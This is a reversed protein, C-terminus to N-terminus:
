KFTTYKVVVSAHAKEYPALDIKELVELKQFELEKEVKRFVEKPKATVDISRSKIMMIAFGNNKLFASINKLFIGTQDRQAIDQYIIDVEKVYMNYSEVKNADALIPLMNKRKECLKVLDRFVRPSFEICYMRGNVAIDSIHSATTGSGAGLYLIKSEKRFPFFKTGKHLMACLKSRRPNWTRYEIGKHTVVNEGYVRSGPTLNKTLFHSGDAYVDTYRSQHIPM